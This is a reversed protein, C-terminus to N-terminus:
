RLCPSACEYSVADLHHPRRECGRPRLAVSCRVREQTGGRRREVPARPAVVSGASGNVVVLRLSPEGLMQRCELGARRCRKQPRISAAGRRLARM